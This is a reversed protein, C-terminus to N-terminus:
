IESQCVLLLLGIKLRESTLPPLPGPAPAAATVAGSVLAVVTGPLM